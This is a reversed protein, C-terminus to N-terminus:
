SCTQFTLLGVIIIVAGPSRQLFQEQEAQIIAPPYEGFPPSSRNPDSYPSHRTMGPNTIL